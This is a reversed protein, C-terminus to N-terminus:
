VGFHESPAGNPFSTNGAQPWVHTESPVVTKWLWPCKDKQWLSLWKLFITTKELQHCLWYTSEQKGELYTPCLCIFVFLPFTIFRHLVPHSIGVSEVSKWFHLLKSYSLTSDLLPFSQTIYTLSNWWSSPVWGVSPGRWLAFPLHCWLSRLTKMLTFLAKYRGLFFTKVPNKLSDPWCCPLFTDSKHCTCFTEEWMSTHLWQPDVMPHYIFFYSLPLAILYHSLATVDPGSLRLGSDLHLPFSLIWYSLFSLYFASCHQLWFLPTKM